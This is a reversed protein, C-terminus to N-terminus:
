VIGDEIIIEVDKANRMTDSGFEITECSVNLVDRGIGDSGEFKKLSGDGILFLQKGKKVYKNVAEASKNWASCRIYSTEKRRNVVAITFNCVKGADIEKLETDKTIRGSLILKFM